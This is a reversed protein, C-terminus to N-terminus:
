QDLAYTDVVSATGYALRTAIGSSVVILDWPMDGIPLKATESYPISVSINPSSSSGACYNSFDYSKKRGDGSQIVLHVAANAYNYLTGNDDKHIVSFSFSCGQPIVLDLEKLGPKGIKM